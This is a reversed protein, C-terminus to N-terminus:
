RKTTRSCMENCLGLEALFPACFAPPDTTLVKTEVSVAGSPVSALSVAM